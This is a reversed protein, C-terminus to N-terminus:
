FLPSDQIYSKGTKLAIQAKMLEVGLYAAHDLRSILGKSIAERCLKIPDEDKFAFDPKADEYKYHVLIIKKLSRDIFIKFCGKPDYIFKHRKRISYPKIGEIKLENKATKEKLILLDLGLDKPPSGRDKALLMMKVATSLEKVCGKTKNSAETTLIISSELEFALGALLLNVSHSDADMLETVNGAGFLIPVEPNRKIFSWYAVLSDILSPTLIPKLIPDAIVWKFGLEKALQINDELAEVKEEIAEPQHNKSSAPTVVIPTNRAFKADKLTESNLSLILDVGAKVAAEIEELDATDISVPKNVTKKVLKVLEWAKKLNKEKAIMGVDIIDAGSEAYYVTKEKVEKKSLAPADVIEALVRPPLNRAVWLRCSGRGIPTAKKLDITKQFKKYIFSLKKLAEKKIQNKILDCAPKVTSLSVKNEKLLKLVIPLDAAHKPGKFAKVKLKNSIISVDGQILGPVLIVDINSLDQKQLAEVILKLPILAAVNIPLSLVQHNVCSELAYKEVEQKALKGTVILVKM